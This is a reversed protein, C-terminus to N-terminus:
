LWRLLVRGRLRKDIDLKVNSEIKEGLTFNVFDDDHDLILFLNSQLPKEERDVSHNLYLSIIFIGPLGITIKLHM